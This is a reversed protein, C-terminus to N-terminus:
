HAVAGDKSIERKMAEGIASRQAGAYLNAPAAYLGHLFSMDWATLTLPMETGMPTEFVTLITPAGTGRAQAPTADSLARMTAYDGIETTSLGNVARREIVVVSMLYVPRASALLRSGRITSRSLYPGGGAMKRLPVGDRDVEGSLRWVAVPGDEKPVVIPDGQADRLLPPYKARLLRIMAEKDNAFLLLVNAHPCNARAVGIRAAAAVRRIREAIAQDKDPTLGSVLPCLKGNEFRALPDTGASPTMGRVFDHIQKELAKEDPARNGVVIVDHPAPPKGPQEQAAAPLALMAAVAAFLARM